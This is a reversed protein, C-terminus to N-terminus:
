KVIDDPGLGWGYASGGALPLSLGSSGGAPGPDSDTSIETFVALTCGPWWGALVFAPNKLRWKGDRLGLKIGEACM